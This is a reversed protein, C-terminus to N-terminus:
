RFGQADGAQLGTENNLKHHMARKLEGDNDMPINFVNGVSRKRKMVMTQRPPGSSRGEPQFTKFFILLLNLIFPFSSVSVYCTPLVNPQGMLILCVSETKYM